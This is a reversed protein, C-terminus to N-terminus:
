LRNNPLSPCADSVRQHATVNWRHQDYIVTPAPVGPVQVSHTPWVGVWFKNGENENGVGAAAWLNDDMRLDLIRPDQATGFPYTFKRGFIDIMWARLTAPLSDPQPAVLSPTSYLVPGGFDVGFLIPEDGPFHLADYIPANTDRPPLRKTIERTNWDWVAIFGDADVNVLQQGDRSFAVHRVPVSHGALLQDIEDLGDTRYVRIAGHERYDHVGVVLFNGDPSFAISYSMGGRILEM